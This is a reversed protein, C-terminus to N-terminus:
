VRVRGRHRRGLLLHVRPARRAHRRPLPRGLVVRQPPRQPRTPPIRPVRVRHARWYHRGGRFRPGGHSVIPLAPASVARGGLWLACGKGVADLPLRPPAPLHRRPAARPPLPPPPTLLASFPLPTPHSVACRVETGNVPVYCWQWVSEYKGPVWDGNALGGRCVFIVNRDEVGVIQAPPLGSAGVANWTFWAVTNLPPASDSGTSSASITPTVSPTGSPSHPAPTPSASPMGASAPIVGVTAYDAASAGAPVAVLYQFVGFNASFPSSAAFTPWLAGNFGSQCVAGAIATVAVATTTGPVWGVGAAVLAAPKGRCPFSRNGQYFGAFVRAVNPPPEDGGFWGLRADALLPESPAQLAGLKNMAVSCPTGAGPLVRSSGALYAGGGANWRCPFLPAGSSDTGATVFSDATASPPPSSSWGQWPAQLIRAASVGGLTLALLASVM